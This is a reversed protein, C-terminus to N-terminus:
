RDSRDLRTFPMVRGNDFGPRRLEYRIVGDESGPGTYSFGNRDLVGISSRLAPLTEAIVRQVTAHAFALEVLAGVAETAYGRRRFEHLISYGIEVDGDRPAGKFGALGAVTPGEPEAPDLIYYMGWQCQTTNTEAYRLAWEAAARDYLEPPWSAPVIANLSRALADRGQLDARMREPTALVLELRATTLIM